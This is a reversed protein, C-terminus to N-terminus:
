KHGQDGQPVMKSEIQLVSNGESRLAIKICLTFTVCGNFIYSLSSTRNIYVQRHSRLTGDTGKFPTIKQCTAMELENLINM